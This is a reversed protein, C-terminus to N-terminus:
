HNAGIWTSYLNGSADSHNTVPEGWTLHFIPKWEGRPCRGSRSVYVVLCMLIKMRLWDHVSQLCCDYMMILHWRECTKEWLVHVMITKVHTNCYIHMYLKTLTKIFLIDIFVLAANICKYKISLEGQFWDDTFGVSLYLNFFLKPRNVSPASLM